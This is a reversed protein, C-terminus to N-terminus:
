PAAPQESSQHRKIMGGRETSSSWRADDLWLLHEETAQILEQRVQRGHQIGTPYAVAVLTSM